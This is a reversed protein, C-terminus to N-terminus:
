GGLDNIELHVSVLRLNEASTTTLLANVAATLRARVRGSECTVRPFRGDQARGLRAWLDSSEEHDLLTFVIV